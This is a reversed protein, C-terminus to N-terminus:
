AAAPPAPTPERRKNIKNGESSWRSSLNIARSRGAIIIRAAVGGVIHNKIQRRSTTAHKQKRSRRALRAQAAGSGLFYNRTSHQQRCFTETGFSLWRITVDPGGTQRDTRGYTVPM